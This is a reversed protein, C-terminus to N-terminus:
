NDLHKPKQKEEGREGQNTKDISCCLSLSCVRNTTNPHKESGMVKKLWHKKAATFSEQVEDINNNNNNNNNNNHEEM